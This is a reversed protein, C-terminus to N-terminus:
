KSDSSSDGSSGSDGPCLIVSCPETSVTVCSILFVSIMLGIPLKICTYIQAKDKMIVAKMMTNICTSWDRLESSYSADTPVFLLQPGCLPEQLAPRKPPPACLDAVGDTDIVICPM